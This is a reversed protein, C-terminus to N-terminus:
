DINFRSHMLQNNNSQEFIHTQKLIPQTQTKLAKNLLITLQHPLIADTTSSHSQLTPPIISVPSFNLRVQLFGQGMAVKDVVFGQPSAQSSRVRAEAALARRRVQRSWPM